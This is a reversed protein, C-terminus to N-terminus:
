VDRVRDSGKKAAGAHEDQDPHKEVGHALHFRVQEHAMIVAKQLFPPEAASEHSFREFHSTSCRGPQAIAEFGIIRMLLSRSKSAMRGAQTTALVTNFSTPAKM